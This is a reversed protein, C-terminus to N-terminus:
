SSKTFKENSWMWSKCELVFTGDFDSIDAFLDISYCDHFTIKDDEIEWVGERATSSGADWYKCTGDDNIKLTSGKRGTYKGVISNSSSSEEVNRVTNNCACFSLLLVAGILLVFLRTLSKKM